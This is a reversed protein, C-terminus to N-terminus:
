QARQLVFICIGYLNNHLMDVYEMTFGMFYRKEKRLAVGTYCRKEKRLALGTYCSQLNGLAM